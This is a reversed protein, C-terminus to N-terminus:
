TSIKFYTVSIYNIFIRNIVITITAMTSKGGTVNEVVLEIVLIIVTNQQGLFCISSGNTGSDTFFENKIVYVDGRFATLKNKFSM